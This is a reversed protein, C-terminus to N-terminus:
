GSNSEPGKSVMNLLGKKVEENRLSYIIPNLMPTLIFYVVSPAMEQDLSDKSIPKLYRFFITGYYLVVVTVHSSCTSIAKHKGETSSIKLIASIIHVYSALTLLLAGMGLFSGLTFVVMHNPFTNSCSIKFLQPLECSFHHIVNPGCFKLTTLLITNLLAYLFGIVLARCILQSCVQKNMRVTYHLPHCIAIYWDYAMVSQLLGEGVSLCVVFFVQTFCGHVSITKKKELLFNELMKPVTVSSFAFDLFALYSLFVYMPTHIHPDVRIVVIIATNGFLIILYILLFVVFLLIQLEPNSSLGLLIFETVITQNDM